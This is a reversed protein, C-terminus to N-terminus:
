LRGGSLFSLDARARELRALEKAEERKTTILACLAVVLAACLLGLVVWSIIAARRERRARYKSEILAYYLAEHMDQSYNM